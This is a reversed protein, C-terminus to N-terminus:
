RGKTDAGFQGTASLTGQVLEEEEEPQHQAVIKGQLLEEEESVNQRQVPDNTTLQAIKRLQATIVPGSAIRQSLMEQQQGLAGPAQLGSGQGDARRRPQLTRNESQELPTKM